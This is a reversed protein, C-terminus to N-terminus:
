QLITRLVDEEFELPTGVFEENLRKRTPYIDTTNDRCDRKGNRSPQVSGAPFAINALSVHKMDDKQPPVSLFLDSDLYSQLYGDKLYYSRFVANEISCRSKPDRHTWRRRSDFVFDQVGHFVNGVPSAKYLSRDTDLVAYDYHKGFAITGHVDTSIIEGYIHGAFDEQDM